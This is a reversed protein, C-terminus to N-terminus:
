QNTIIISLMSRDKISGKQEHSNIHLKSCNIYHMNMLLGDGQGDDDM